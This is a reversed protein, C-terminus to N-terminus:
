IRTPWCWKWSISTPTPCNSGPPRRAENEREKRQDFLFVGIAFPLGVVTVIYSLLEWTELDV